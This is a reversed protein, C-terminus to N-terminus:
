NYLNALTGREENCIKMQTTLEDAGEGFFLRRKKVNTEMPIRDPSSSIKKM